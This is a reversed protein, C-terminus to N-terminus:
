YAVGTIYSKFKVAQIYKSEGECGLSNRCTTDFSILASGDARPERVVSYSRTTSNMMSNGTAIVVDNAIQVRILSNTAVWAQARQWYLKCQDANNCTVPVRWAEVLEPKVGVAEDANLACGYAMAAAALTIVKMANKM